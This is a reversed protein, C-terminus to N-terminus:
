SLKQAPVLLEYLMRRSIASYLLYRSLYPCAQHLSRRRVRYIRQHLFYYLPLDPLRCIGQVPHLKQKLDKDM